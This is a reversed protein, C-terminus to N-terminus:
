YSVSFSVGATRQKNAMLQNAAAISFGEVIYLKDTFNNVYGAIEFRDSPGGRWAIRANWITYDGGIATINNDSDYFYDDSYNFSVQASAQGSFVPHFVRMLGNATWKPSFVLKTGSLDVMITGGMGDAETSFFDSTETDLYGVGFQAEFFDLPQMFIEMEFGTIEANGANQLRSVPLGDIDAQTFAQFDEYDYYFGTANIRLRGGMLTTKFGAEFTTVKEDDYPALQSVEAVLGGSNWGGSKFGRAINAFLLTNENLRWDLGANWSVNNTEFSDEFVFSPAPFFLLGTDVTDLLTKDETTYRIGLELTWDPVFSWDAHAFFALAETDQDHFIDYNLPFAGPNFPPELSNGGLKEDTFYYFGLLGKLDDTTYSLRIEQTVQTADVVFIPHLVLPLFSGTTDQHYKDVTEVATISVVGWENRQWEFKASGGFIDIDLPTKGRGQTFPEDLNPNTDQQGFANVCTFSELQELNCPTFTAPDLQGRFKYLQADNRIFGAHFNLLVSLENTVDLELQARVADINRANGKAGSGPDREQLGDNEDHIVSLRGRVRDGLPGSVAGEFKIREHTGVTVEGFAELDETPKNTVFHALGGTTNRGYLTGQPGRLVEVRQLDFLSVTQGALSGLYVEDIYVAVPGENSDAFDNLGVGRISLAPNSGDGSPHAFNFNPVQSTIDGVADLGLERIQLGSIATVSGGVDQVDQERKTATVVIEELVGQANAPLFSNLLFLGLIVRQFIKVPYNM